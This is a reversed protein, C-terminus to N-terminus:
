KSNTTLKFCLHYYLVLLTEEKWKKQLKSFHSGIKYNRLIFRHESEGQFATMKDEKEIESRSKM